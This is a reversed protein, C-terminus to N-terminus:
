RRARAQWYILGSGLLVLAVVAGGLLLHKNSDSQAGEPAAMQEPSTDFMVPDRDQAAVIVDGSLRSWRRAAGDANLWTLLRDLEEPADTSTAVLLSRTGDFVSQLSAYRLNPVLTLTTRDSEGEVPAVQIEGAALTELPLVVDPHDWGTSSILVAPNTSALADVIPTVATDLPLASLRQLGTLVEIARRTDAISEGDIGVLVRPLLTQPLSQFGGPIPFAAPSSEVATSGDITLTIPQFEGCGGVDGSIDVAVALNTYRQLLADPISVWRDITGSSEAVWRDITEGGISVVVQGGLNQPVPTYSGILHVRLSHASRGLRTQDLGILVQPSLATANVGPQGLNRITTLNGALQPASQLPGVVAKSSLAIRSLDSSILRAQNALESASGTIALSPVGEDGQLAVGAEPRERVVIQRELPLSPDTPAEQGAPLEAVAVDLAATGYRAVVATALRVAADSEAQTPAAPLFLTLKNLVPPLFDAVTSPPQEIGAYTVATDVLRLPNSPDLCYGPQGVLYTRLTLTVANDRIDVGFLPLVIPARDALPLEVRSITRDDQSVTMAGGQLFVPLEVTATLFDPVLGRPVPITVSETGQQGYFAISSNSGLASLNLTPADAVLGGEGPAAGAVPAMVSPLVALVVATLLASVRWHFRNAGM